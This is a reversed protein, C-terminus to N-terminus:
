KPTLKWVHGGPGDTWYVSTDDVAIDQPAGGASLTTPCGGNIRVKVVSGPVPGDPEDFGGPNYDAYGSNTWYVSTEDVAIQSPLSQGTALTTIAGGALPTKLVTGDGGGATGWYVSTGDVAIGGSPTLGQVPVLTTTSGGALPMKM